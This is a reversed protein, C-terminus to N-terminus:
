NNIIKDRGVNDGSGSHTQNITTKNQDSKIQKLLSILFENQNFDRELGKEGLFELDQVKNVEIAIKQATIEDVIWGTFQNKLSEASVLISKKVMDYIIGSFIAATMFEM